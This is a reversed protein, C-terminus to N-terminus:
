EGGFNNTSGDAILYLSNSDLIQNGDSTVLQPTNISPSLIYVVESGIRSISVKTDGLYVAM